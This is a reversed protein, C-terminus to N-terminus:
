WCCIQNVPFNYLIWSVKEQRDLRQEHLFTGHVFSVLVLNANIRHALQPINSFGIFHKYKILSMFTVSILNWFLSEKQKHTNITSSHAIGAEIQHCTLNEAKNEFHWVQPWMQCCQIYITFIVNPMQLVISKLFM